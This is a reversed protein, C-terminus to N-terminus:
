KKTKIKQKILELECYRINFKWQEFSQKGYKEFLRKYLLPNDSGLNFIPEPNQQGNTFVIKFYTDLYKAIDNDNKDIHNYYFEICFVYVWWSFEHSHDIPEVTDLSYNIKM